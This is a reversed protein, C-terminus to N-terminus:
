APRLAGLFLAAKDRRPGAVAYVAATVVIRAPEMREIRGEAVLKEGALPALFQATMEAPELAGPEERLCRAALLAAQTALAFALGPHARGQGDGTAPLIPASLICLGPELATIGAGFSTMLAQRAFDARLTKEIEPTM